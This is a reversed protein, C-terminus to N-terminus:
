QSPAVKRRAGYSLVTLKVSRRGFRFAERTSPVWVDIRRGRVASGRDAVTYEGSYPGAELRVRTGMPLVSTDAQIPPIAQDSPVIPRHRNSRSASLAEMQSSGNLPENLVSELKELEDPDLKWKKQIETLEPYNERKIPLLKALEMVPKRSLLKELSSEEVIENTEKNPKIDPPHITQNMITITDQLTSADEIAIQNLRQKSTEIAETNNTQVAQDLLAKEKVFQKKSEQNQIEYTDLVRIMIEKQQKSVTEKTLLTTKMNQSDQQNKDMFDHVREAKSDLLLKNVPQPPNSRAFKDLNAIAIGSLTLLSAIITCIVQTRTVQIATSSSIKAVQVEPDDKSKKGEKPKATPAITASKANM